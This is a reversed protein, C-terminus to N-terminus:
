EVYVKKKHMEIKKAEEYRCLRGRLVFRPLVLVRFERFLAALVAADM